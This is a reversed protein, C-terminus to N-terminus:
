EQIKAVKAFVGHATNKEMLKAVVDISRDAWLVTFPFINCVVPAILETAM